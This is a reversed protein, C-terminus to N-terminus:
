MVALVAATVVLSAAWLLDVNIWAQRLIRLGAFEYVLAALLGSVGLYGATHLLTALLARWGPGATASAHHAHPAPAPASTAAHAVHRVVASSGSTGRVVGPAAAEVAFPVAMLGAGHASAVLFSWAVLERMGVRMGGARPHRHRRLQRVGLGLLAVVVVWRLAERPVALGVLLALAVAAAVALAHGVALPALARWVARREGQQLGLAVAFLWGMGPNLGHLAGLGLLVAWPWAEGTM